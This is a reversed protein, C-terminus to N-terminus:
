IYVYSQLALAIMCPYILLKKNMSVCKVKIIIVPNMIKHMYQISAKLHVHWQPANRFMESVIDIIDHLCFFTSSMIPLEITTAHGPLM